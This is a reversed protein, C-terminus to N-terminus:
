RRADCSLCRISARRPEGTSLFEYYDAAYWDAVWEQVNGAMDIAGYPSAGDPYSGVQMTDYACAYNAHQCYDGFNDGWPYARTDDSGRAAKEWEAETPLRKGAWGCYDSANDWTVYIVPYNAYAPNNYYSARTVSSSALPPACAGASVCKAYQANTVEYRDIYYGDLYIMHLPQEDPREECLYGGNHAPDCGMWFEGRPVYVMELPPNNMVLPLYVSHIQLSRQPLEQRQRLMPLLSALALVMTLWCVLQANM